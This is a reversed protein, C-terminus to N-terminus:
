VEAQQGRSVAMSLDEAYEFVNNGEDIMADKSALSVPDDAPYTSVILAQTIRFKPAYAPPRARVYTHSRTRQPSQRRSLMASRTSSGSTDRYSSASRRSSIASCSM